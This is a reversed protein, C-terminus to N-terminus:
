ILIVKSIRFYLFVKEIGLEKLASGVIENIVEQFRHLEMAFVNALTFTDPNIDFKQGTREMLEKWDRDRLAENKLDMFLPLSDRFQKMKEELVRPCVMQRTEKALKRLKKM